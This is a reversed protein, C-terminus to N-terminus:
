GARRRESPLSPVAANRRMFDDLAATQAASFRLGLKSRRWLV